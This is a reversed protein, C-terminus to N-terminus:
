TSIGKDPHKAGINRDLSVLAYREQEEGKRRGKRGEGGWGRM